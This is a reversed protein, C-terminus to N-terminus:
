TSTKTVPRDRMWLLGVLRTRARTHIHTDTVKILRLLVGTCMCYKQACVISRHVYLVGTCMCYGQACVIGRHMYLVGTCMFYTKECVISMHVYLVGTCM